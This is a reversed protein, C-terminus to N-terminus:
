SEDYCLGLCESEGLGSAQFSDCTFSPNNIIIALGLIGSKETNSLKGICLQSMMMYVQQHGSILIKFNIRQVNDCICLIPSWTDRKFRFVPM